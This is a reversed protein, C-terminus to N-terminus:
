LGGESGTVTGVGMGTERGGEPGDVGFGVGTDVRRAGDRAGETGM